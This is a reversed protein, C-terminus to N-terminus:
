SLHQAVESLSHIRPCDTVEPFLDSRDLLIPKIGAGRAGAIDIDLQDGVHVAESAPVRARQLATLFIKPQPKSSGVEGSTLIFDLYDAL